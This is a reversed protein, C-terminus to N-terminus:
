QSNKPGSLTATYNVIIIKWFVFAIGNRALNFCKGSGQRGYINVACILHEHELDVEFWMEEILLSSYYVQALELESLLVYSTMWVGDTIVSIYGYRSQMVPAIVQRGSPSNFTCTFTFLLPFVETTTDIGRM